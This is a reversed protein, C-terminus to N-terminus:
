GVIVLITSFSFCRFHCEYRQKDLSTAQSLLNVRCAHYSLSSVLHACIDGLKEWPSLAKSLASLETQLLITVEGHQYWLCRHSPRLSDADKAFLVPCFLKTSADSHCAQKCLLSSVNSVRPCVTNFISTDPQDAVGGPLDDVTNEYHQDFVGMLMSISDLYEISLSPLVISALHHDSVVHFNPQKQTRYYGTAFRAPCGSAPKPANLMESHFNRSSMVESGNTSNASKHDYGHLTTAHISNKAASFVKQLKTIDKPTVCRDWFCLTRAHSNLKRIPEICEKTLNQRQTETTRDFSHSLQTEIALSLLLPIPELGERKAETCFTVIKVTYVEDNPNTASIQEKLKHLRNELQRRSACQLEGFKLFNRKPPQYRRSFLHESYLRFFKYLSSLGVFDDQLIGYGGLFIAANSVASFKRKISRTLLHLKHMASADVRGVPVTDLEDLPTLRSIDTYFLLFDYMSALTRRVPVLPSLAEVTVIQKSCTIAESLREKLRKCDEKMREASDSENSQENNSNINYCRKDMEDMLKRLYKRWYFLKGIIGKAAPHSLSRRMSGYFLMFISHWDDMKAQLVEASPHQEWVTTHVSPEDDRSVSELQSHDIPYSDAHNVSLVSSPGVSGFSVSDVTKAVSGNSNFRDNKRDLRKHASTLESITM